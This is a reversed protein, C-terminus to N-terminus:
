KPEELNLSKIQEIRFGLSSGVEVANKPMFVFM